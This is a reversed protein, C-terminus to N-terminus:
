GYSGGLEAQRKRPLSAFVLRYSDDILEHIEDHPVDAPLDITIWHHKNMYYGPRVRTYQAQLSAGHEPVVKLTVFSDGDLHVMAFIKNDVRFVDADPGFTNDVTVVGAQACWGCIQEIITVEEQPGGSKSM